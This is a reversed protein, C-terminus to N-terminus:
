GVSTPPSISFIFHIGENDSGIRQPDAVDATKMDAPTHDAYFAQRRARTDARATSWHIRHFGIALDHDPLHVHLVDM